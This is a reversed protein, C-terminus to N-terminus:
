DHLCVPRRRDRSGAETCLEVRAQPVAAQDSRMRALCIFVKKLRKDDDLFSLRLSLLKCCDGLLGAQGETDEFLVGAATSRLRLLGAKEFM